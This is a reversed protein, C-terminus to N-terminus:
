PLFSSSWFFLSKDSRSFHPPPHHEFVNAGDRVTEHVFEGLGFAIGPMNRKMQAPDLKQVRRSKAGIAKIEAQHTEQKRLDTQRQTRDAVNPGVTRNLRKGKPQVAAAKM